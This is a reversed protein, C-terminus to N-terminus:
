TSKQRSAEAQHLLLLLERALDPRGIRALGRALQCSRPRPAAAPLSRRWMALVHFAQASPSDGARLKGLQAASRGLRLSPVLLHM